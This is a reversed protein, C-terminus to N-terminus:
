LNDQRFHLSLRETGGNGNGPYGGAVRGFAMIVTTVQFLAVTEEETKLTVVFCTLSTLDRKFIHYPKM